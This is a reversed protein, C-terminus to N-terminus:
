ASPTLSWRSSAAGAELQTLHPPTDRERVLEGAISYRPAKQPRVRAQAVIVDVLAREMALRPYRAHIRAADQDTVSGTDRGFDLGVGARVLECLPGRREAIGPSTHLAIAEWVADVDAAPLGHGTLFEAAVDAGDVEFRQDRDGTASLGIDHLVCALFLLQPDYDRGPRAGLHEARIRGFLYSRISHNAIAAPEDAIVLALAATALQTTPLHLPDVLHDTTMTGM